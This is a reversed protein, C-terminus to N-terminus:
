ATNSMIEIVYQANDNAVAIERQTRNRRLVRCGFVQLLDLGGGFKGDGESALQERKAPLLDDKWFKQVEVLQHRVHDVHQRSNNAFIDSNGEAGSGRNVADLGVRALNFLNQHVEGHVRSVRHGASALDEDLGPVSFDVLMVNGLVWTGMASGMDNQGEAVRAM